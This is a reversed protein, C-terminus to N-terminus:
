LQGIHKYPSVTPKSKSLDSLTLNLSPHNFFLTQGTHSGITEDIGGGGIVAASGSGEVDWCHVCCASTQADRTWRPPSSDEGAM